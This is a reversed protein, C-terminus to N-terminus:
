PKLGFSAREGRVDWSAAALAENLSEALRRAREFRPDYVVRVLGRATADRLERTLRERQEAGLADEGRKPEAPEGNARQLIRDRLATAEPDGPREGLMRELEALAADNRGHQMLYRAWHVYRRPSSPDASAARRQYESALESRGLLGAVRAASALADRYDPY